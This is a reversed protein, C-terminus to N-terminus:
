DGKEPGPKFSARISKFLTEAAVPSHGDPGASQLLYIGDGTLVEVGRGPSCALIRGPIRGVYPRTPQVPQGSWIRYRNGNFWTLAGPYPYALGRVLNHIARTCLMWDILGDDPTRACTYTALREDQARRECDGALLADFHRDLLEISVRSTRQYVDYATDDASIPIAVQDVIDGNDVGTATLFFLTAGTETEGNIVAWNVPAFGRYVPLLSEHVGVAGLRPASLVRESILTRWGLVVLLDPELRVIEAEDQPKLRRRLRCPIRHEDCFRLIEPSFKEVEHEDEELCYVMQPLQRRELLRHLWKLSRDRGGVLVHRAQHKLSM